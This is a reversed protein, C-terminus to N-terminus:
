ARGSRAQHKGRVGTGPEGSGEVAARQGDGSEQRIRASLKLSLSTVTAPEGLSRAILALEHAMALLPVHDEVRGPLGNLDLWYRTTEVALAINELNYGAPQSPLPVVTASERGTRQGADNLHELDSRIETPAVGFYSAFALVANLGIPIKGNLYQSVAGQTMKLAAGVSEQSFPQGAARAAKLKADWIRKLRAAAAKDAASPKAKRDQMDTFSIARSM